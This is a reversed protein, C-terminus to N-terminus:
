QKNKYERVYKYITTKSLGTADTIEKISFENTFYMKLAQEVKKRDKPKRGGKRGRKKAAELGAKTREAIVDREMQILACFMHFVFKGMATTTDFNETISVLNIGRRQFDEALALLQKTTRGLRDLKWIVLTDGARLKGLLENLQQRDEKKGTVKETYIEDVGYAQLADIQLDLNQDNKSVRAYGFKM